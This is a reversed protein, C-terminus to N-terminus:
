VDKVWTIIVNGNKRRTDVYHHADVIQEFSYCRDIVPKFVGAEALAALFRLDEARGRAPGVLIKKDTTLSAWLVELMTPLGAVLLLLRGDKKLSDKCRSFSATGVADMIIDYTKEKRMFDEQTYDIVEDAGLSRVLEVNAAGCVATVKAGFYKALQLAATGVGGSAGNILLSEGSQLAGQRLFDLATTGGFSLAAAEKYSLNSPKLAIASDEPLCKYEVYCGLHTDTFAFVQDGIKFKSVDKGVSEIEGALESGLIPQRPRRIGFLLRMILAFGAPVQLSRLRWDGANVTTAYLKILVENNKPIPKEMETLQLVEPAGYRQYVIAKM